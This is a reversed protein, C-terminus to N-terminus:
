QLLLRHFRLKTPDEPGSAALGISPNDNTWTYTTIGDENETDFEILQRIGDCVQSPLPDVQAEPFVTVVVDFPDSCEDYTPTVTYTISVFDESNFLTQSINSQDTAAAGGTIAGVPDSM